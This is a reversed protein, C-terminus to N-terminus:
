FKRLAISSSETAASKSRGTLVVTFSSTAAKMGLFSTVLETSVNLAKLLTTGFSARRM